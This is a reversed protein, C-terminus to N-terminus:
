GGAFLGSLRGAEGLERAARLLRACSECRGCMLAGGNYCSWILSFDLDRALAERMITMKDWSVTFSRLRVGTRTSYALARNSERVFADSNDPFTAAEEANLGMVVWRAGLAEAVCAGMAALLGNRNPVWVAGATGRMLEPDELSATEVRPPASGASTLADTSIEGLWRAELVLHRVGHSTCLSGAMETERVAARQGYDVTVAAEVGGEDLAILLNVTSDLGASLLVVNEGM